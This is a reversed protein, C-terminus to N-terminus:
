SPPPPPPPPPAAAAFPQRLSVVTTGAIRDTYKQRRDAGPTAVAILWDILLFVWFIKSINRIFAQGFNVGAGSVTQVHLGMIRKGVTGGWYVELVLFYLVMLIGLAFPVVLVYGWSAWLGLLAGTFLLPIFLAFFLIMIIIFLIVGDIILAILRLLWHGMDLESSSGTAMKSGLTIQDCPTIIM